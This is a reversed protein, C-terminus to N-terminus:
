RRRMPFRNINGGDPGTAKEVEVDTKTMTNNTTNYYYKYNHQSLQYKGTMGRRQSSSVDLTGGLVYWNISISQGSDICKSTM